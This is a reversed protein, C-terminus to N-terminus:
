SEASRAKGVIMAGGKEGTPGELSPDPYGELSDDIVTGDLAVLEKFGMEEFRLGMQKILKQNKTPWVLCIM